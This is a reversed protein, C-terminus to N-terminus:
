FFVKYNPMIGHSTKESFITHAYKRNDPFFNNLTKLLLLIM